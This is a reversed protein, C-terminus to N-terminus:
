RDMGKSPTKQVESVAKENLKLAIGRENADKFVDALKARFVEKMHPHNRFEPQSIHSEYVKEFTEKNEPTLASIKENTDRRQEEEKVAERNIFTATVLASVEGCIACRGFDPSDLEEENCDVYEWKKLFNDVQEREKESMNVGDEPGNVIYPIFFTNIQINNSFNEVKEKYSLTNKAM